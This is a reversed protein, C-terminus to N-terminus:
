AMLLAPNEIHFAFSQLFAAATEEDVVRADASLTVTMFHESELRGPVGAVRHRTRTGGIALICAQV